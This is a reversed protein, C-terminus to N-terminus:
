LKFTNNIIRSTLWVKLFYNFSVLNLWLCTILLQNKEDQFLHGHQNISQNFLSFKCLKTQQLYLKPVFVFRTWKEIETSLQFCFYCLYIRVVDIIQQLTVGFTLVLPSSENLVPRNQRSTMKPCRLTCHLMHFNRFYHFMSEDLKSSSIRQWVKWLRHAAGEVAGEWLPGGHLSIISCFYTTLQTLQVIKGIHCVSRM